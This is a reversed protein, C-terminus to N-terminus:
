GNAQNNANTDVDMNVLFVNKGAGTPVREEEVRIIKNTEERGRGVAFFV